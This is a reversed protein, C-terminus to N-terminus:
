AADDSPEPPTPGPIDGQKFQPWGALAKVWSPFDGQHVGTRKAAEYGLYAVDKAGPPNQEDGFTVFSRGAWSEWGIWDALELELVLHGRDRHEVEVWTGTAM